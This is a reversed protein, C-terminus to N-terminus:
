ALGTKSGRLHGRRPARHGEDSNAAAMPMRILTPVLGFTDVAVDSRVSRVNATARQNQL